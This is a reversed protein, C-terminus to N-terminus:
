FLVAAEGREVILREAHELILDRRALLARRQRLTLWEGLKDELLEPTM